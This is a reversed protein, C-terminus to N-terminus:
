LDICKGKKGKSGKIWKCDDLKHIDDEASDLADKFHKESTQTKDLIKQFSEMMLQVHKMGENIIKKHKQFEEDKEKREEEQFREHIFKYFEDKIILVRAIDENFESYSTMNLNEITDSANSLPTNQNLYYFNDIPCNVNHSSSPGSIVMNSPPIPGVNIESEPNVNDFMIESANFEPIVPEQEQEQETIANEMSSNYIYM